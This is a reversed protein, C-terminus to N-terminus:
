IRDEPPTSSTRSLHPGHVVPQRELIQRVKRVAVSASSRRQRWLLLLMAGLTFPTSSGAIFVYIAAHDLRNFWAKARGQPLAHYVASALYLVMMTAAFVAVSASRPAILM